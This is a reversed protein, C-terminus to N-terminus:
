KNSLQWMTGDNKPGDTSTRQQASKWAQQLVKFGHVVLYYQIQQVDYAKESSPKELMWNSFGVNIWVADFQLSEEMTFKADELHGVCKCMCLGCHFLFGESATQKAHM